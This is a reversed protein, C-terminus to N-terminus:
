NLIVKRDVDVDEQHGTETLRKRGSEESRNEGMCAIHGAQRKRGGQYSVPLIERNLFNRV